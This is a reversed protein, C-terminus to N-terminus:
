LALRRSVAFPSPREPAGPRLLEPGGGRGGELRRAVPGRKKGGGAGTRGEWGAEGLAKGIRTAISSASIRATLDPTVAAVVATKGESSTGVLVVGSKLKSRLTDSLNRLEPISLGAAIRTVIRIGDVDVTDGSGATDGSALKLKLSAVERELSKLREEREQWRSFLEERPTQAASSLANL